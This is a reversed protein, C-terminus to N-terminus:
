KLFEIATKIEQIIEKVRVNLDELTDPDGMSHNLFGILAQNMNGYYFKVKGVKPKLTEKDTVIIKKHLEYGGSRQKISFTDNLIM